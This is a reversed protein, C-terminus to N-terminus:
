GFNYFGKIEGGEKGMGYDIRERELLEMRCLEVEWSDWVEFGGGKGVLGGEFGENDGERGM